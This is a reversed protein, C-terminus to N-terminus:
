SAAHTQQVPLPEKFTLTRYPFPIEIGAEDLASKIATVVEGRSSRIEVPTPATWWAVEIDISSAGFAQPFVQIPQDKSVSECSKVAGEIVDVSQKIDEDYAIGAMITIRRTKRNTLVNVPNKFLFSNPVLMLEGSTLRLKTMRVTVDEVKGLIGECEIYDGNEFPFRWLLLIGAFFNEFIDQFAFGIAISLLGLGGLATTPTLGPFWFMAALLLGAGWILISILRHVLERLSDKMHGHSMARKSARRAVSVAAWTLLLVLVGALLFPTHELFSEWIGFMTNNVASIVEGLTQPADIPSADMGSEAPQVGGTQTSTDVATKEQAM